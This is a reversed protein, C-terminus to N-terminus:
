QVSDQTLEMRKTKCVQASSSWVSTEIMHKLTRRAQPSILLFTGYLVENVRDKGKKQLSNQLFGSCLAPVLNGLTYVPLHTQPHSSKLVVFNVVMGTEKWAHKMERGM